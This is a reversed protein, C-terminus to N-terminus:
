WHGSNLNLQVREDFRDYEGIAVNKFLLGSQLRWMKVVSTSRLQTCNPM